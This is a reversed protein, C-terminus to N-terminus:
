ATFEIELYINKRSWFPLRALWYKRNVAEKGVGKKRALCAVRAAPFSRVPSRAACIALLLKSQLM